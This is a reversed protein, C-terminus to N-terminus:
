TSVTCLRHYGSVMVHNIQENTVLTHSIKYQGCYNAIDVTNHVIASLLWPYFYLVSTDNTHQQYQTAYVRVIGVQNNLITLILVQIFFWFYLVNDFLFLDRILLGRLVFSQKLILYPLQSRNSPHLGNSCCLEAHRKASFPM